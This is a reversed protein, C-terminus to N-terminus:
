LNYQAIYKNQLIMSDTSSRPHHSHERQGDVSEMRGSLLVRCGTWECMADRLCRRQPLLDGWKKISM